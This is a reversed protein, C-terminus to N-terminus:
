KDIEQSKLYEIFKDVIKWTKMMIDVRKEGAVSGYTGHRQDGAATKIENIEDENFALAKITDKWGKAKNGSKMFHNMITEAVRRCHFFTDLPKKIADRLDKLVMYLEPNKLALQLTDQYNLPRNKEDQTIKVVEAGFVEFYGTQPIYVSTIELSYSYGKLYGYTDVMTHAFMEVTNKLDTPSYKSDSDLEINVQSVIISVKITGKFDADNAGVEGKVEPLTINAREPYVKGTFIYKM